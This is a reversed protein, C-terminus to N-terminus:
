ELMEQQVRGELTLSQLFVPVIPFAHPLIEFFHTQGKIRVRYDPKWPFFRCLNTVTIDNQMAPTILVVM